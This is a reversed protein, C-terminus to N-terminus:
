AGGEFLTPAERPNGKGALETALSHAAAFGSPRRAPGRSLGSLPLGAWAGFLFWEPPFVAKTGQPVRAKIANGNAPAPASAGAALPLAIGAIKKAKAARCHYRAHVGAFLFKLAALFFQENPPRSFFSVILPPAAGARCLRILESSEATARRYRCPLAPAALFLCFFCPKSFPATGAGDGLRM